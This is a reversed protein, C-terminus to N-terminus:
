RRRSFKDGDIKQFQVAARSAMGFSDSNASEKIVLSWPLAGIAGVALVALIEFATRWDM